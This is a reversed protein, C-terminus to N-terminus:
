EISKEKLKQWYYQLSDNQQVRFKRSAIKAKLYNIRSDLVPHTSLFEPLDINEKEDKLASFLGVMGNPDIHKQELLALGTMDAEKELERNYELSKLSNANEAVVVMIGNLDGFLLSVLFYSSLNRFLAKLSHRHQLHANEHAILGAFEEYSDTLHIIPEYVVIHGGPVAFANAQRHKVVTVSVKGSQPSAHLLNFFRQAYMTKVSDKEEAELMGDILAQGLKAEASVPLNEAIVEATKPILWFYAGAVLLVFVALVSLLPLPNGSILSGYRSGAFAAKPYHMKLAGFFAPDKVELYEPPSAAYQLEVLEADNFDNRGILNTDWIRLFDADTRTTLRFETPLLEVSVPLGASTKGNFYLGEFVAM